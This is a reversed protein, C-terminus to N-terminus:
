GRASSLRAIARQQLSNMAREAVLRRNAVELWSQAAAAPAGDLSQLATVAAQLDGVALAEEAKALAGDVGGAAMAEPGTRRITVLSAVREVVRDTWGGTGDTVPEARVIADATPPFSARLDALTTVGNAAYPELIAVSQAIEVDDGGMARVAVLERVFPGGSGMAQALQGAALVSAAVRSATDRAITTWAELSRVQQALGSAAAAQSELVALRDGVEKLAAENAAAAAAGGGEAGGMQEVSQRLGTVSRELADLRPALGDLQQRIRVQRDELDNLAADIEAPIGVPQAETAQQLRPQLYGFWLGAGGAALLAIIALAWVAGGSRRRAPQPESAPREPAAPESEIEDSSSASGSQGGASRSQWPAPSSRDGEAEADTPSRDAAASADGEPVAEAAPATEPMPAALPESAPEPPRGPQGPRQDQNSDSSMAGIGTRQLEGTPALTAAFRPTSSLCDASPTASACEPREAVVEALLAAQTPEAAVRMRRWPLTSVAAAVAESLCFCVANQACHARGAQRLLRVLTRGTRPSFVVVGDIDDAAWRAVLADSLHEPTDTRYLVERRYTFGAAQLTGGLDGAVDTGAAHLVAGGSPNLQLCAREALSAVDGGASEVEEFGLERAARATADGVALVPLRREGTRRGLARVGNASTALVAQVGDLALAPGDALQVVLLPEIVPDFGRQRLAEALGEADADPRTVWIRHLRQAQEPNM